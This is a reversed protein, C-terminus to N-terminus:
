IVVSSRFPMRRSRSMLRAEKTSVKTQMMTKKRAAAWSPSTKEPIMYSTSFRTDAGM